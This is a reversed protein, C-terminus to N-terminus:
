AGSDLQVIDHAAAYREWANCTDAIAAAGLGGANANAAVMAPIDARREVLQLDFGQSTHWGIHCHALWAGPNDARFGVVLFGSAPLMAVDRRPPNALNLQSTSTYTASAQQGLVYFDHGHLHLPHTLGLESEIALYNWVNDESLTIINESAKFSSNTLVQQLTPEAWDSLFTQNNLTWKFFSNTTSLALEFTEQVQADGADLAVYPVLSTMPEDDCNDAYQWMETQPEGAGADAGSYSVIGTINLTMANSSCTTQPIARMWYGGAAAASQDAKVVVDYRQGIGISVINTEYPEIPVFDAAIVTMTHNDISFKFFSDMATNVLRLRYSKGPEFTTNFRSGGYPSVNLGNILGNDATPPTGTSAQDYLSDVTQHFWDTLAIAGLDEDYAASAPGNIIIPGVVGNWAQLSFHSHYWSTGYQTAKWTYTTTEGPATPCQTISAVGDNPNTFNQRIGHFHISSGNNQMSNTVHVVVTDGWDATIAPGPISGNVALVMREFGDPAATTNVIDFWYERVVGTDPGEDYYNTSLSYDGWCQPASASDFACGATSNSAAKLAPAAAALSFLACLGSFLTSVRM